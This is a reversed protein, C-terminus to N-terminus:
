DGLRHPLQRCSNPPKDPWLEHLMSRRGRPTSMYSTWVAQPLPPALSLWLCHWDARTAYSGFVPLDGSTAMQARGCRGRARPSNLRVCGIGLLRSRPEV